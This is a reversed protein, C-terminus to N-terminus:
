KKGHLYKVLGAAALGVVIGGYLTIDHWVFAKLYIVELLVVAAPIRVWWSKVTFLAYTLLLAHGSIFPVEVVMRLIAVVVVILDILYPIFNALRSPRQLFFRDLRDFLFGVFPFGIPVIYTLYYSLEDGQKTVLCFISLAISLLCAALFGIEPRFLDDWRLSYKELRILRARLEAVEEKLVSLQQDVPPPTSPEM